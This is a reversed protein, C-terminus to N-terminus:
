AKRPNGPRIVLEHVAGDVLQNLQAMVDVRKFTLAFSEGPRDVSVVLRGRRLSVPQAHAALQRGVVKPWARQITFLPRQEQQM